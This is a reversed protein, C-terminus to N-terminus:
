ARTGGLRALLALAAVTSGDTVRGDDVMAWVEGLSFWGARMGQEGPERRPPGQTLGTALFVTFQSTSRGHSEHLAGLRAFSAARLGTEEALETAAVQEIPQAAGHVAGQPFEWGRRGIPYRYQEVLCYREGDFPVIVAFDPARLVAYVAPTGDPLVIQDETMRVWPNEYVVTSAITRFGESDDPM